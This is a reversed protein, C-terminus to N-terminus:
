KGKKDTKAIPRSATVKKGDKTTQKIEATIKGCGTKVFSM